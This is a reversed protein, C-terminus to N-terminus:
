TAEQRKQWESPSQGTVRKFVKSFYYINEFGLALAIENVRVSGGGQAMMEKAREVKMSNVYDVLSMGMVRKFSKSMYGASVGAYSAVDALGIRQSVHTMVYERAKDVIPSSSAGTLPQLLLAADDAVDSLVQVVRNRHSLYPVLAFDDDILGADLMGIADFGSYLAAQLASLVFAAQSPSHDRSSLCQSILNVCARLAVIDKGKVAAEARPYASDIDLDEPQVDDKGLYCRMLSLEFEDRALVLEGPGTHAASACLHPRMSTVMASARQVKTELRSLSAKWMSVDVDCVFYVILCRGMAAPTVPLHRPFVSPLVKAIVDCQWEYLRCYDDVSWGKDMTPEPYDVCFALIGYSGLLGASFLRSRMEQTVERVLLLNSLLRESGGDGAAGRQPSSLIRRRDVENKVKEVARALTQEDLETKVVYECVGYRIAEKVLRFEELSTLIIFVTSPHRASCERILELGDMVPMKIDTIVIEVERSDLAELAERGNRFCGEISCDLKQWDLLHSVGSLIIPEDDVVYIGYM